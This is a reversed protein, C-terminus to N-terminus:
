RDIIAYVYSVYIKQGRRSMKIRWVYFGRGFIDLFKNRNKTHLLVSNLVPVLPALEKEMKGDKKNDSFMNLTFRLSTFVYKTTHLNIVSKQSRRISLEGFFYLICCWMVNTLSKFIDSRVNNQKGNVNDCFGKWFVDSYISNTNENLVLSFVIFMKSSSSVSNKKWAWKTYAEATVM